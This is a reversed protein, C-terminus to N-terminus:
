KEINSWINPKPSSIFNGQTMREYMGDADGFHNWWRTGENGPKDGKDATAFAGFRGNSAKSLVKLLKGNNEYQPSHYISTNPDRSVSWVGAQGAEIILRANYKMSLM